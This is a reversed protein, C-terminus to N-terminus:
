YTEQVTMMNCSSPIIEASVNRSVQTVLMVLRCVKANIFAVAPESHFSPQMESTRSAYGQEPNGLVAKINPLGKADLGCETLELQVSHNMRWAFQILLGVRVVVFEEAVVAISGGVVPVVFEM